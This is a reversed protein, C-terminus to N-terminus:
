KPTQPPHSYAGCCGWRRTPLSAAWGAPWWFIQLLLIVLPLLLIWLLALPIWFEFNRQRRHRINVEAVFPIM